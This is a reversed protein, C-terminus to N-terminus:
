AAKWAKKKVVYRGLKMGRTWQFHPTDRNVQREESDESTESAREGPGWSWKWAVCWSGCVEQNLDNLDCSLIIYNTYLKTVNLINM